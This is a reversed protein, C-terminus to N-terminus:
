RTDSGNLTEVLHQIVSSESFSARIMAGTMESIKRAAAPNRVIDRMLQVAHERDADAWHQGPDYPETGKFDPVPVLRYDVLGFYDTGLYDLQGGWGTIIVPNGRGAADFAGLGWGESHTLSLFCDGSRHLLDIERVSMLRCIVRIDPVNARGAILEAIIRATPVLEPMDENLAGLPDTKVILTVPDQDTFAELFATITDRLAKRATWTNITYFVFRDGSIGLRSRFGAAEDDSLDSPTRLIHPIVSVPRTVGDSRFVETNFHCPVLIRDASNLLDKWHGPIHDTEWVTYGVRRIGKEWYHPWYQPQTHMYLTDYELRSEIAALLCKDEEINQSHHPQFIRLRGPAETYPIYTDDRFIFPQWCLPLRARILGRLYADGATGYGTLDAYSIVKIGKRM